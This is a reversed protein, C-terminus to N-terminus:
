KQGSGLFIKLYKLGGRKSERRKRELKEIKTGEKVISMILFKEGTQLM